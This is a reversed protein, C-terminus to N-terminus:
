GYECYAHRSDAASCHVQSTPPHGSKPPQTEGAPRSEAEVGAAATDAEAAIDVATTTFISLNAAVVCTTFDFLHLRMEPRRIM